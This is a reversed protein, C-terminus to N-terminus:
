EWESYLTSNKPRNPAVVPQEKEIVRFPKPVEKTLGMTHLLREKRAGKEFRRFTDDILMDIHMINAITEYTMLNKLSYIRNDIITEININLGYPEEYGLKASIKWGLEASLKEAASQVKMDIEYFVQRIESIRM